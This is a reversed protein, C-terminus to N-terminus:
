RDGRVRREQDCGSLWQTEVAFRQVVELGQHHVLCVRQGIQGIQGIQTGVISDPEENFTGLLVGQFKVQM